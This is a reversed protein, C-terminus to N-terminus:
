ALDIDRALLVTKTQENSSPASATTLSAPHANLSSLASSPTSVYRAVIGVNRAAPLFDMSGQRAMQGRKPTADPDAQTPTAELASQREKVAFRHLQDSLTDNRTM